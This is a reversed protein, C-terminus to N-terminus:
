YKRIPPTGIPNSATELSNHLWGVIRTGFRFRRVVDILLVPEYPVLNDEPRQTSEFTPLRNGGGHDSEVKIPTNPGLRAGNLGNSPVIASRNHGGSAISANLMEGFRRELTAFHLAVLM